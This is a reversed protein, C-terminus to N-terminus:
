KHPLRKTVVDKKNTSARAYLRDNQSNRPTAVTFTKTQKNTFLSSALMM